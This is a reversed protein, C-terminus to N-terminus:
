ETPAPEIGWTGTHGEGPELTILGEGSNFANPACTMPEVGLGTRRRDEQPLTDGTFIEFYPYSEDIWLAAAASGDARAIHVRARGDDDRALDTYTVDIHRDGLPQMQRLDYPTGEVAERGTPIGRQDVPLYVSGPVRVLAADIRPTGVSLYPHAGTGYPCPTSSRNVATTQVTLGDEGLRYELRCELVWPWGQCAHQTHTFTISNETSHEVTWVAWRTLGHIAGGKEPESLDLQETRGQWTYRGSAIRNPWPILSQGRAGTCMEDETYGDLIQRGGVDYRRLAAGVETLVATQARHSITFQRGSPPWATTTQEQAQRPGM